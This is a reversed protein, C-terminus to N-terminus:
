SVCCGASVCCDILSMVVVTVVWTFTGNFQPNNRLEKEIHHLIFQRLMEVCKSANDPTIDLHYLFEVIITTGILSAGYSHHHLSLCCISLRICVQILLCNSNRSFQMLHTLKSSSGTAQVNVFVSWHYQCCFRRFMALILSICNHSSCTTMITFKVLTSVHVCM